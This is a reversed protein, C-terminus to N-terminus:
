HKTKSDYIQLLSPTIIPTFYEQGNRNLHDPDCFLKLVEDDSMGKFLTSSSIGALTVDDGFIDPWCEREPIMASRMEATKPFHLIVLKIQNKQALAM